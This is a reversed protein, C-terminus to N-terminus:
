LKKECEANVKELEKYEETLKEIAARNERMANSYTAWLAVLLALLVIHILFHVSNSM